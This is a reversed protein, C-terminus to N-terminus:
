HKTIVVGFAGSNDGFENDNIGLMLVGDAPMVIPQTNSGIPFPAMNGVRGILGGAPLVPVPYAESRNASNGDPGAMAPGYSVQGSTRFSVRDGKKVTLSTATWPQNAPVTIAGAEFQGSTAVVSQGAPAGQYNFATRAANANLYVRSVDHLAYQQQQGGENQWLLTAGGVINVFHGGQVNGDRLALLEGSAPLKSLEAQSPSGGAVDIVAVQTRPISEEKGGGVGLNLQDDIMNFSSGGHFVVDGSKREGNTLIFTAREAAHVYIGVCAVVAVMYIFRRIM